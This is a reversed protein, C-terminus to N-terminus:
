KIKLLIPRSNFPPNLNDNVISFICSYDGSLGSMTFEVKKVVSSNPPITDTLSTLYINRLFTKGDHLVAALKPTHKGAAQCIYLTDNYPNLVTLNIVVTSDTNAIIEENEVLIKVDYYSKFKDFYKVPYKTIITNLTDDANRAGVLMVKQGQVSDGFHWLDYQNKRYYVSNLTHAFDGGSYFAYKSPRQFSNVFVVKRDGAKAKIQQAWTDWNHFEAGLKWDPPLIEVILCIRVFILLVVTPVFFGRVWKVTLTNNSISKYSLILLPIYAIATWHPEVHGKFSSFFFFVFFGVVNFKMARAFMNGKTKAKIAHYIVIIGVFPGAILLQSYLYNFTHDFKYASSRGVLHYELTPFNNQFQWIIHPIFLITAVLPILWFSGRKAIKINSLLTFFIVLVAHYKSYLMGATVFGILVAQFVSDNQLYKKYFYFFLAAFFVVPLDPIALFGGIHSQFIVVSCLLIFFLSISTIEDKMLRYIIVMTSTGMLLPLLRVGLENPFLFYGIKVLLAIMPPHDFYGWDLYRSYMWYYSEDHALETFYAQIINVILWVLFFVSVVFQPNKNNDITHCLKKLMIQVSFQFKNSSGAELNKLHLVKIGNLVLILSPSQM